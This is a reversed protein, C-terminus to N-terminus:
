ATEKRQSRQFEAFAAEIPKSQRSATEGGVSASFWARTRLAVPVSPATNMNKPNTNKKSAHMMDMFM